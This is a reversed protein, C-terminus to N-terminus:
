MLTLHRIKCECDTNTAGLITVLQPHYFFERHVELMHLRQKKFKSAREAEAEDEDSSSM